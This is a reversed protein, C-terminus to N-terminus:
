FNSLRSRCSCSDLSERSSCRMASEASICKHVEFGRAEFPECYRNLDTVDQTFVLVKATGQSMEIRDTNEATRQKMKSGKGVLAICMRANEFESIAFESNTRISGYFPEAVVDWRFRLACFSRKLARVRMRCKELREGCTCLNLLRSLAAPKVM